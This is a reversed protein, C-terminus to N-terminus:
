NRTIGVIRRKVPNPMVELAITEVRKDLRAIQGVRRKLIEVDPAIIVPAIRGCSDRIQPSDVEAHVSRRVRESLISSEKQITFGSWAGVSVAEDIHLRIPMVNYTYM